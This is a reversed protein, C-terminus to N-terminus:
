RIEQDSQAGRSVRALFIEELSADRTDIMQGGLQEIDAVFQAVGRDHLIRHTNWMPETM